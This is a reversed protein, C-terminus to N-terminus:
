VSNFSEAALNRLWRERRLWLHFVIVRVVDLLKVCFYLMLPGFDTFAALILLLPMMVFATIFADAIAGMATDGGSRAVALQVNMYLWLPLFAATMIVMTRCLRIAAPSLRGFVVPVLLTTLLGFLLMIVGLVVSGSLLWTKQKKAEELKGAGLTSGLIVSTAATTGGFSVFFLNAIAFGAAMGSVVDAGGRGNYVATTVTESLVWTMESMMVMFCKKVMDKFLPRDIGTLEHPKIVFPPKLKACVIIYIVLETTRAIVTAFAAGRVGM